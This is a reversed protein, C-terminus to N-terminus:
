EAMIEHRPPDPCAGYASIVNRSVEPLAAFLTEVYSDDVVLQMRRM